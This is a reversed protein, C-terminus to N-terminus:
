RTMSRLPTDMLVFDWSLLLEDLRDLFEIQKEYERDLWLGILPKFMFLLGLLMFALSILLLWTQQDAAKIWGLQGFVPKVLISLLINFVVLLLTSPKKRMIMKRSVSDRLILTRERSLQPNGSVCIENRVLFQKFQSEQWEWYGGGRFTERKNSIVFAIAFLIPIYVTLYYANNTIGGWALAVFATLVLFVVMIKWPLTLVKNIQKLTSFEKRYEKMMNFVKSM